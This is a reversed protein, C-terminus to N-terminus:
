ELETVSLVSNRFDEFPNGKKSMWMRTATDFWIDENPFEIYEDDGSNEPYWPSLDEGAVLLSFLKHSKEMLEDEPMKWTRFAEEYYALEGDGLRKLKIGIGVRKVYLSPAIRSLLLYEISDTENMFYFDLRHSEAILRYDDDFVPDFKSEQTAKRPLRGAYRIIGNILEVKIEDTM